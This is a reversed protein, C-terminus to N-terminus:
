LAVEDLIALYDKKLQVCDPHLLPNNLEQSGWAPNIAVIMVGGDNEFLTFRCPLFQAARVDISLARNMKAFNCFYLVRVARAEMDQPVLRADIAQQRVYTYNNNSIAQLLDASVQDLTRGELFRFLFPPEDSTQTATTAVSDTGVAPAAYAALPLLAVLCFLWRFVRNM